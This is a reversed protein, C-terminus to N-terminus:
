EPSDISTGDKFIIKRVDFSIKLKDFDSNWVKMDKDMFQNIKLGSGKEVFTKGTAVGEDFSWGVDMIKDGFFDAIRMTTKIGAIDKEGKNEFAVDFTVSRAGYDGSINRKAVAVVTILKAFEEQKAKQEAEVKKKLEEAKTKEEKQKAVWENQENLAQGVTFGVPPEKGSMANRVMWGALKQGEESTLKQGVERRQSETLKTVEFNKPDSCGQLLLAGVVFFSAVPIQLRRTCLSLQFM